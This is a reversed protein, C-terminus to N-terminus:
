NVVPETILTLGWCHNLIRESDNSLYLFSICTLLFCVAVGIRNLVDYILIFDERKYFTELKNLFASTWENINMM